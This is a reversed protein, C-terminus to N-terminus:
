DDLLEELFSGPLAGRLKALARRYRHSVTTPTEGLQAAAEQNSVGEIARM